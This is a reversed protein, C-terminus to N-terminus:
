GDGEGVAPMRRRLQVFGAHVAHDFGEDLGGPAGISLSVFGRRTLQLAFDRFELKRGISTEPEYYPVFVAPFPGTGDPVLLYGDLVQEAAVQVRVRHQTFSERHESAVIELRPSPVLAPWSGLLADWADRIERRRQSWEFASAVRRGDSFLLPSRLGALAGTLPPPPRFLPALDVPPGDDARTPAALVGFAGVSSIGVLITLIRVLSM